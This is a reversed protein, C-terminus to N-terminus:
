RRPPSSSPSRAAPPLAAIILDYYFRSRSDARARLAALVAPGIERLAGPESAHAVLSLAGLESAAQPDSASTIWPIAGPGLVLPAWICGPGTEIPTAAWRAIVQYPTVVLVAVPCRHRARLTAAYLPWSFVKDPDRTLQVEVVLAFVPAGRAELLVVVDAQDEAPLLQTLNAEAAVAREFCPLAPETAFV